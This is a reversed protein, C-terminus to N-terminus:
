YLPYPFLILKIGIPSVAGVFNIVGAHFAQKLVAEMLRFLIVDYKCPPSFCQAIGSQSMSQLSCFIIKFLIMEHLTIRVIMYIRIIGGMLRQQLNNVIAKPGKLPKILSQFHAIKIKDFILKHANHVEVIFSFFVVTNVIILPINQCSFFYLIRQLALDMEPCVAHLRREGLLSNLGM